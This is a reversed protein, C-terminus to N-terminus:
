DEYIAELQQASRAMGHLTHIRGEADKYVVGPTGYFGLRTMLANNARIERVTAPSPRGQPDATDKGFNKENERWAAGPDDAELIAAGHPLSDPSIVAVTIVRFDVKGGAIWPQSAQWLRHCYPCETDMFAYVVRKADPNGASFWASQELQKWQAEGLAADAVERMAPSTLDRGALDYLSGIVIHKGDPTVYVPLQRGRFRGVFGRFGEPADLPGTIELGTGALAKKVTSASVAPSEQTQEPARARSCGVLLLSLLAALILNKM